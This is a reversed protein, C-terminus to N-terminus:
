YGKCSCSAPTHPRLGWQKVLLVNLNLRVDYVAGPLGSTRGFNM